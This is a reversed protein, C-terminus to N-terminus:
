FLEVSGVDMDKQLVPSVVATSYVVAIEHAHSQLAALVSAETVAGNTGLEGLRNVVVELRDIRRQVCDLLQGAMDEFQLARVATAVNDSVESSIRGLDALGVTITKDLEALKALLADARGRASAAAEKDRATGEVLLERVEAMASQTRQLQRAIQENLQQSFKSLERVEHAVVGFARGSEGVRTAEITANLALLRTQKEVSEFRGLLKFTEALEATMTEVRRAGSVNQDTIQVILGTFFAFLHAMEVVFARLSEATRREGSGAMVAVLSTLQQHQTRVLADLQCFSKQLNLISDGLLLRVQRIEGRIHTLEEGPGARLASALGSVVDHLTPTRAREIM